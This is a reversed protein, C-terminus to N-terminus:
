TEVQEPDEKGNFDVAFAIGKEYKQRV